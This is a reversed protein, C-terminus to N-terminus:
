PRSLMYDDADGNVLSIVGVGKQGPVRSLEALNDVLFEDLQDQTIVGRWIGVVKSNQFLILSPLARPLADQLVIEMKTEPNKSEVDWKVIQVKGSWKDGEILKCPGCWTACADVLVAGGSKVVDNYNEDDLYKLEHALLGLERAIRSSTPLVFTPGFAFASHYPLAM